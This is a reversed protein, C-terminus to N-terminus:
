PGAELTLESAPTSVMLPLMPPFVCFKVTPPNPFVVILPTM